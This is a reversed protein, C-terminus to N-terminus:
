TNPSPFYGSPVVQPTRDTHDETRVVEGTEPNLHQIPAGSSRSLRGDIWFEQRIPQGDKFFEVAPLDGDRHKVNYRAWVRCIPIGSVPDFKTQAPHSGSLPSEMMGGLWFEELILVHTYPDWALRAPAGKRGMDGNQDFWCEEIANGSEPCRRVRVQYIEDEDFHM